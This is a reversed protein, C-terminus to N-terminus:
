TRFIVVAVLRRGCSVVCCRRGVQGRRTQRPRRVGPDGRRGDEARGAASCWKAVVNVRACTGSENTSGLTGDEAEGLRTRLPLPLEPVSEIRRLKVFWVASVKLKRLKRRTSTVVVLLGVDGAPRLLGPQM